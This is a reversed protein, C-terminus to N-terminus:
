LGPCSNKSGAWENGKFDFGDRPLMGVASEATKGGNKLPM